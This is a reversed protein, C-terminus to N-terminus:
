SKTSNNTEPEKKKVAQIVEDARNVVEGKNNLLMFEMELGVM